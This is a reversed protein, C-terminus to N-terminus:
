RPPLSPPPAAARESSPRAWEVSLILHGYGFGNLKEVCREASSREAFAAFAFGKPTGTFKDRALFIRTVRGFPALLMRLDDETASETLNSIRVSNEDRRGYMSDGQRLHTGAGARMSPPVYRSGTDSMAGSMAGVNGATPALGSATSGPTDGADGGLAAQLGKFPCRLTWHDGVKGCIRCVVISKNTLLEESSKGGRVGGGSGNAELDGGGDGTVVAAGAAATGDDAAAAAAAAAAWEINVDENAQMTMGASGGVAEGASAGAAAQGFKRWKRRLAVAHNVRRQERRQRVRRVTRVLYGDRNVSYETVTHVGDADPESVQSPPLLRLSAEGSRHGGVGTGSVGVEEEDEEDGWSTIKQPKNLEGVGSDM